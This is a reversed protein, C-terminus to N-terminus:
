SVRRHGCTDAPHPTNSARWSYGPCGDSACRYMHPGKHGDTECCRVAGSFHRCRDPASKSELDALMEATKTQM